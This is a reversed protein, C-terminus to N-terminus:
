NREKSISGINEMEPIEIEKKQDRKLQNAPNIEEKSQEVTTSLRFSTYIHTARERWSILSPRPESV